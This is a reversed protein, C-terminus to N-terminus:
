SCAAFARAIIAVWRTGAAAKLADNFNSRSAKLAPILGFLLGTLLSVSAAFSLVRLDLTV